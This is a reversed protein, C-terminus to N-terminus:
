VRDTPGTPPQPAPAPRQTLVRWAAAIALAACALAGFGHVLLDQHFAASSVAFLIVSAVILLTGTLDRISM